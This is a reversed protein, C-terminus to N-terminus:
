SINYQQLKPFHVYKKRRIGEVFLNKIQEFSTTGLAHARVFTKGKLWIDEVPNEQPTYPALRMCCVKWEDTPRNAQSTELFDRMAQQYPYSAGDWVILLQPGPRRRQIYRIFDVTHQSHAKPYSQMLFTGKVVDLAGYYTQRQRENEICVTRRPGPRGWAYGCADGWHLHSEDVFFASLRGAQLAEKHM